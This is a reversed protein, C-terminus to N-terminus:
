RLMEVARLLQEDRGGEGAVVVVDPLVGVGDIKHGDPSFWEAITIKASSGDDFNYIRQVTGKGFTKEGVIKARKRDQLAAAVIESASASGNNVLVILPISDPVTPDKQTVELETGHRTKTQVYTSGRPVFNSVTSEAAQLLGGPDNRLDLVIGKPKRAAVDEFTKRIEREATIGFQLLKVVAVDGQMSSQIELNKIADRVVTFDMDKGDRRIRLKAKSGKPGRVHDVATELDLDKLDVGDVSLIIDRPRLGTKEAPSGPLPAVIILFEDVKEVTAGIGTIEGALQKQYSQTKAPPMYVSYPDKLPEFLADVAADGMKIADIRDQYLFDQQILEWVTKQIAEKPLPVNSRPPKVRTVPIVMIQGGNPTMGESVMLNGLIKQAEGNTLVRKAGFVSRSDPEIWGREVALALAKAEDTGATVDAFPDLPTKAQEKPAELGVLIQIAESRTIPRAANLDKGFVKLAGIAHATQVYPLLNQPIRPFPKLKSDNILEFRLANMSMRLFDGRSIPSRDRTPDSARQVKEQANAPKITIAPTAAEAGLPALFIILLTSALARRLTLLMRM